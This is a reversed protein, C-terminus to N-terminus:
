QGHKHKVVSRDAMYWPFGLPWLLLVFIGWGFSGSDVGVWIASVAVLFGVVKGDGGALMDFYGCVIALVVTILIAWFWAVLGGVEPSHRTGLRSSRRFAVFDEVDMQQNKPDFRIIGVRSDVSVIVGFCPSYREADSTVGVACELSDASRSLARNEKALLDMGMELYNGDLARQEYENFHGLIEDTVEKLSQRFSEQGSRVPSVTEICALVSRALEVNTLYATLRYNGVISDAGEVVRLQFIDSDARYTFAVSNEGLEGVHTVRAKGPVAKSLTVLYGRKELISM